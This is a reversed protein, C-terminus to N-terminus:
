NDFCNSLDYQLEEIVDRKIVKSGESSQGSSLLKDITFAKPIMMRVNQSINDKTYLKGRKKM